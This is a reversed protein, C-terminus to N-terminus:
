EFHTIETAKGDWRGIEARGQLLKQIEKAAYWIAMEEQAYEGDTGVNMTAEITITVKYKRQRM